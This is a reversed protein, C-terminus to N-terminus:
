VIFNATNPIDFASFYAEEMPIWRTRFMEAMEEGNRVLIRTMQEGPEVQSFVRIQAYNGLKPHMSYSGEVVTYEAAPIEACGNYDMQSCDFIRYSCGTHKSLGPLVEQAFREYHVNGGPQSLRQPTRLSVPLFFDDMHICPACLIDCLLAAMTTKGSAARGDIAIVCPTSLSCLTQLIPVIRLDQQSVVRYHPQEALRYEPSHHVARIGETLYTDRAEQWQAKTFSACGEAIVADAAALLESFAPLSPYKTGVSHFFLGSLWKASLGAAKWAALNVRCMQPSIEEWLPEGTFAANQLEEALYSEAWQSDQILHEAGFAAQYCLKLIDQPQTSPHQSLQRRIYDVLHM